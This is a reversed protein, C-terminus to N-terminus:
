DAMQSLSLEIIASSERTMIIFVNGYSAQLRSVLQTLGPLSRLVALFQHFSLLHDKVKGEIIQLLLRTKGQVDNFCGFRMIVDNPSVLNARYAAEALADPDKISTVM